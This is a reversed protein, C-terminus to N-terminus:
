KNLSQNPGLQHELDQTYPLSGIFVGAVSVSVNLFGSSSLLFYWPLFVHRADELVHFTFLDSEGFRNQDNSRRGWM